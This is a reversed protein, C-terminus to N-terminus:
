LPSSCLRSINQNLYLLFVFGSMQWKLVWFYLFRNQWALDTLTINHISTTSAVSCIYETILQTLSTMICASSFLYDISLGFGLKDIKRTIM